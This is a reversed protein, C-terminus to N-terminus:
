ACDCVAAIVDRAAQDILLSEHLLNTLGEKDPCTENCRQFAVEAHRQDVIRIGLFSRVQCGDVSAKLAFGNADWFKCYGSEVDFPEVVKALDVKSHVLFVEGEYEVILPYKMFVSAIRPRTRSM